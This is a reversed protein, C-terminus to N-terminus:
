TVGKKAYSLRAPKLIYYLLLLLVWVSSRRMIDGGLAYVLITSFASLFILDNKYKLVLKYTFIIFTLLAFAGGQLAITFLTQHADLYYNESIFVSHPGPGYGFIPSALIKDISSRYIYTRVSSIDNEIFFDVVFNSISDRYIFISFTSLIAFFLFLIIKLQKSPIFNVMTSIFLVIVGVILALEVKTSNTELAIYVLFIATSLYFLKIIRSKAQILFKTGIFPLPAIFMSIHHINTAFPRFSNYYLLSTGFLSTSVFNAYLYLLILLTSSLVYIKKLSSLLFSSSKDKFFSNLTIVTFLVFIYAYIDVLATELTGSIHNKIIYNNIFGIFTFFIFISWFVSFLNHSISMRKRLIM